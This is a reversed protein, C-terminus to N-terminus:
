RIRQLSSPQFDQEGLSEGFRYDSWYLVSIKGSQHNSMRMEGPRWFRERYLRHGSSILTKLKEGRRDDYEIRLAIFREKDVWVVQRGYGSHSDLPVRELKFCRRGAFVDEGLYDHKYKEVEISALDEYSFESGMFPATKSQPAIRKVRKLSPLYLWQDDDREIHTHSLFATGKVDAPSDFIALSQDGDREAERTKVRLLRVTENGASSGLVMKVHATYNGFGRERDKMTRAIDVGRAADAYASMSWVAAALWAGVVWLAGTSPSRAFIVSM